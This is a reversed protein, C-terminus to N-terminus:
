GGCNQALACRSTRPRAPGVSGDQGRLHLRAVHLSACWCRHRPWVRPVRLYLLSLNLPGDSQCSRHHRLGESLGASQAIRRGGRRSTRTALSSHTGDICRICIRSGLGGGGGVCLLTCPCSRLSRLCHSVQSPGAVSQSGLRRRFCRLTLSLGRRWGHRRFTCDSWECPWVRRLDHVSTM